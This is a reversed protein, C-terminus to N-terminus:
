GPASGQDTAEGRSMVRRRADEVSRIQGCLTEDELLRLVRGVEPGPPIGLALLDTGDLYRPPFLERDSWRARAQCAPAVVDKGELAAVLVVADRYAPVRVARKQDVVDLGSFGVIQPALDLLAEIERRDVRSLRLTNLLASRAPQGIGHLLAAWGLTRSRPYPLGGLGVIKDPTVPVGPLVHLRLGFDELLSLARDLSPGEAMRTLEETIRERSVEVIRPALVRAAARLSPDVALAFRAAFRVARLMRLRDEEFRAAPLGVTRLRRQDLDSQGGVHDIVEGTEPDLFMANITFDRRSADGRLSTWTVRGPHRGDRYDCEDRFTTVEIAHMGIMVLVVGFQVGVPETREFLGQVEAPTASTAVDYDKPEVCLLRDRVCGGALLAEYGSRRLRRIVQCAADFPKM